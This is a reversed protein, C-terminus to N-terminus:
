APDVAYRRIAAEDVAVGLGGSGQGYPASLSGHQLVFRTRVLDDVLLDATALGHALGTWGPVGPVGAACALAVALGIGTEFLTSIVVPVQREAAQLAIEGVVAPGGIVKGGRETSGADMVAGADAASTEACAGGSVVVCALWGGRVWRM